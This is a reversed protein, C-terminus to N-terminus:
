KKLFINIKYLINKQQLFFIILNRYDRNIMSAKSSDLIILAPDIEKGGIYTYYYIKESNWIAGAMGSHETIFSEMIFITDTAGNFFFQKAEKLLKMRYPHFYPKYLNFSRYDRTKDIKQSLSKFKQFTCAQFAFLIVVIIKM